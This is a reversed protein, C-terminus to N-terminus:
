TTLDDLKNKWASLRHQNIESCRQWQVAKVTGWFSKSHLMTPSTNDDPLTVATWEKILWALSGDRKVLQEAIKQLGAL